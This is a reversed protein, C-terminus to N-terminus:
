LNKFLDIKEMDQKYTLIKNIIGNEKVFPKLIDTLQITQIIINKNIQELTERRKEKEKMQKNIHEELLECIDDYHNAWALSLATKGGIKATKCPDAGNDLLLQCLEMNGVTAAFMLPTFGYPTTGKNIDAGNNILLECLRIRSHSVAITLVSHGNQQGTEELIKNIDNDLVELLGNIDDREILPLITTDINITSM